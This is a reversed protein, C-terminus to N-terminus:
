KLLARYLITLEDNDEFTFYNNEQSTVLYEIM